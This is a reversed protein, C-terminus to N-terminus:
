HNVREFSIRGIQGNKLENLFVEQAKNIDELGKSLYGRSRAIKTFAVHSSDGKEIYSYRGKINDFYYQNLYNYAEEAVEELPLIEQKISGTLALLMAKSKEEYSNQLIGPTDLLEFRNSVKILQQSKTHGPKNQVSASHRKALKNILTSKGVNPIGIVMARIPQPKMGKSVLKQQKAEGLKEVRKIINQIDSSKNLDAFVVASSANEFYKGWEKTMEPDALDAKTLVVLRLKNETIKYLTENRSALPIRADLLEIVCDVLKVKKEIEIQAKKMHGPFWHIQQNM